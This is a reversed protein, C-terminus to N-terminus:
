GTAKLVYESSASDGSRRTGVKKLQDLVSKPGVNGDTLFLKPKMSIIGEASLGGHYGVSPLSRIQPPYVSTLDRAILADQAGIEYIFENIQKSVSVVRHSPGSSDARACALITIGAAVALLRFSPVKSM